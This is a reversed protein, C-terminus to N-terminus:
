FTLNNPRTHLTQVVSIHRLAFAAECYALYYRWKRLFCDDFGLSKVEATRHAFREGWEHLTRAYDPGLDDLQNLVFGGERSLLENVRNLSLLLSGPFIHKQIFDVGTRIAHYRADPCVIFQLAMLGAPKLAGAATRCWTRLYEHGVAELMEISVLKDYREHRPLQRYDQLRVEIRGSLGAEAVRRATWAHQRPSLTLSTIRCGRTRAAHLAWGGWGTGIELVHDEARLRLKACLAENKARQAEELTTASDRWLASSYMMSSDLWRAFFENSLDYHERINRAANRRSNSRARHALRNVWRLLNIGAARGRSGSLTPAHERNLLFWAIVATADPTTWDGDIYAEAFGIDGHLVCRQFFRRDRVEIRAHDAIARAAPARAAGHWTGAGREGFQLQAGDPLRLTLQGRPLRALAALVLRQSWHPSFPLAATRPLTSDLNM